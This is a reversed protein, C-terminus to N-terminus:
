QGFSHMCDVHATASQVHHDTSRQCSIMVCRCRRRQPPAHFITSDGSCYFWAIASTCATCVSCCTTKSPQRLMMLQMTPLKSGTLELVIALDQCLKGSCMPQLLPLQQFWLSKHMATSCIMQQPVCLTALMLLQGATHMSYAYSSSYNHAQQQRFALTSPAHQPKVPSSCTVSYVAGEISMQVTVIQSDVYRQSTLLVACAECHYLSTSLTACCM